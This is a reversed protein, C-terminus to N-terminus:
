DIALLEKESQAFSAIESDTSALAEQLIDPYRAFAKRALIAGYRRRLGDKSDNLYERITHRGIDDIHEMLYLGTRHTDVNASSRNRLEINAGEIQKLSIQPLLQMAQLRVIIETDELALILHVISECHNKQSCLAIHELVFYRVSSSEDNILNVLYEHLDCADYALESAIWAATERVAKEQSRLFPILCEASAGSFFYQLLDYSKGTEKFAIPDHNWLDILQDFSLNSM